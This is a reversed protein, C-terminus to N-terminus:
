RMTTIHSPRMVPSSSAASAVCSRIMARAVWRAGTAAAHGFGAGVSFSRARPVLGICVGVEVRRDLIVVTTVPSASWRMRASPASTMSSTKKEAIESGNRVVSFKVDIRTAVATLPTRAIPTVKTMMVPPMSRETPVLMVNHVTTRPSATVFAPNGRQIPMGNASPAPAKIPLTFPSRIAFALSGGKM